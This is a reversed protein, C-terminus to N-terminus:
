DCNYLVAKASIFERNVCYILSDWYEELFRDLSLGTDFRIKLRLSDTGFLKKFSEEMAIVAPSPILVQSVAQIEIIGKKKLYNVGKIQLANLYDKYTKQSSVQEFVEIFESEALTNKM